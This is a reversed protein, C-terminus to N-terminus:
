DGYASAIFGVAAVYCAAMWALATWATRPAGRFEKWVFVGWAAAILPASQGIAYSIPVGVLGAAIFNFCTGLGWVVGGVLGLAHNRTGARWFGSFSVPPGHLPRRMFRVNVVFCCLLAGISFLVATSYPTLAHGHTMARTVLPAFAGMLVGSIVSVSIGLKSKGDTAAMSTSSGNGGTAETQRQRLQRYARANLLVAVVALVVGTGLLGVNGKPQLVYSLVVGEVVAIGIAIPFAVALGAIDIAAILLLNAVNFIAGGLLAYLGNSGDATRLNALFPEGTGGASGATLALLVSCLVVGAIYDWYFLAFPYGRAGKYTNAWSGWFVATLLTLALAVAFSTPVYM